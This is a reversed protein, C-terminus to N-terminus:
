YPIVKVKNGQQSYRQKIAFDFKSGIFQEGTAQVM